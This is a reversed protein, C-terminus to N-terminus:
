SSPQRRAPPLTPTAEPQNRRPQNVWIVTVGNRRAWKDILDIKQEDVVQENGGFLSACGTLGVAAFLVAALVAARVVNFARSMQVGEGLCGFGISELVM